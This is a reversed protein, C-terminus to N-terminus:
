TASRYRCVGLWSASAMNADNLTFSSTRCNTRLTGAALTRSAPCVPSSLLQMQDKCNFECVYKGSFCTDSDFHPWCLWDISGNKGFVAATEGDGILSYDELPSSM